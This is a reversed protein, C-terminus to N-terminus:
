TYLQPLPALASERVSLIPVFETGSGPASLRNPNAPIPRKKVQHRLRRWVTSPVLAHMPLQGHNGIYGLNSIRHAGGIQLRGAIPWIKSQAERSEAADEVGELSIIVLDTRHESHIRSGDIHGGSHRLRLGYHEQLHRQAGSQYDDLLRASQCPLATSPMVTLPLPESRGSVSVCWREPLFGFAIHRAAAKFGSALAILSRERNERIDAM